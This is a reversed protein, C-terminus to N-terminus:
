TVCVYVDLTKSVWNYTQKERPILGVEGAKKKRKSTVEPGDVQLMM